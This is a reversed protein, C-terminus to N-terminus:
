GKGILPKLLDYIFAIVIPLVGLIWINLLLLRKRREVLFHGPGIQFEVSPYASLIKDYAFTAPFFGQTFIMLWKLALLPVHIEHLFGALASAWSPPATASSGPPDLLDWLFWMSRGIGLAMIGILLHKHRLPFGDQPGFSSIAEEIAKLTGNVWRSDIGEVTVQNRYESGGHTLQITISSRDSYREYAVLALRVSTVKKRAIVSDDAFLEIEGSRYSSGDECEISYVIEATYKKEDKGQRLKAADDALLQALHRVDRLMIIRRTVKLGRTEVVHGM